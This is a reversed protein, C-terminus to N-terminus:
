WLRCPGLKFAGHLTAISICGQWRHLTMRGTRCQTSHGSQLQMGLEPPTPRFLSTGQKTDLTVSLSNDVTLLPGQYRPMYSFRSMVNSPQKTQASLRSGQCLMAPSSLQWINFASKISDRPTLDIETRLQVAFAGSKQKVLKQWEFVVQM